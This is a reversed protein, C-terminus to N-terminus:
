YTKIRLNLISLSSTTLSTEQYQQPMFTTREFSDSDVEFLDQGVNLSFRSSKKKTKLDIISFTDQNPTVGFFREIRYQKGNSEFILNGGFKGGQWPMYRKRDNKSLNKSARPMGYFMTRIFAALTTKGFGNAEKIVTLGESFNLSYHSLTGFNEIYCSILKM